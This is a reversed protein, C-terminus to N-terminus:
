QPKDRGAAWSGSVSDGVFQRFQQEERQKESIVRRPQKPQRPTMASNAKNMEDPM